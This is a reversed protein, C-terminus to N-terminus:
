SVVTVEGTDIVFCVEREQPMNVSQLVRAHRLRRVIRKGIKGDNKEIGGELEIGGEIDDSNEDHSAGVVMEETRRLIYRTTVFYSWVLGLAPVVEDSASFSVPMRRGTAGSAVAVEVLSPSRSLSATVQNTILIPVNHLDSLKRLQSSIQFLKYSRHRHFM